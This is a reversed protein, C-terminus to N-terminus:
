RACAPVDEGIGRLATDAAAQLAALDVAVAAADPTQEFDAEVKQMTELVRASVSRDLRPDAALRHLAEHAVNTFIREAAAVDPVANIAQCVGSSSAALGAVPQSPTVSDSAGPSCGTLVLAIVIAIRIGSRLPMAECRDADPLVSWRQLCDFFSARPSAHATNISAGEATPERSGILM